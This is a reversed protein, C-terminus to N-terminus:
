QIVEEMGSSGFAVYSRLFVGTLVLGPVGRQLIHFTSGGHKMWTVFGQCTEKDNRGIKDICFNSNLLSLATLLM